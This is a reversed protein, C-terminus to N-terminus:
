RGQYKVTYTITGASANGKRFYWDKKSATNWTGIPTWAGPVSKFTLGAAFTPSSSIELTSDSYFVGSYYQPFMNLLNTKTYTALQSVTDSFTYSVTDTKAILSDSSQAKLGLPILLMFLIIIKRM